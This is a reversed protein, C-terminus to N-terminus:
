QIHALTDFSQQIDQYHNHYAVHLRLLTRHHIHHVMRLGSCRVCFGDFAFWCFHTSCTMDHVRRHIGDHMDDRVFSDILVIAYSRGHMMRIAQIWDSFLYQKNAVVQTTSASQEV